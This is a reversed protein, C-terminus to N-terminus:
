VEGWRLKKRLVHFFDQEQSRLLRTRYPSLSVKVTDQFKMEMGVQGDITLYVDEDETMLTVEIPKEHPLILPRASLTHPCIPAVVVAEMSPLLIPGGASLSYATSGTASAIILGDSRYDTLYKEDIRTHLSVMRALASKNICIDNLADFTKVVLGNRLVEARLRVRTEETSRGSLIRELGDFMNDITTDTLFGLKGMNVAYIPVEHEGVLRAAGILTGDGGIVLVFTLSPIDRPSFTSIQPRPGKWLQHTRREVVVECGRERLWTIAEVLCGTDEHPKGVIGVRTPTAQNM